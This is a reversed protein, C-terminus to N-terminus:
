ASDLSTPATFIPSRSPGSRRRFYMRSKPKPWCVPMSNGPSVRPNTFGSLFQDADEIPAIDIPCSIPTVGSCIMEITEVM